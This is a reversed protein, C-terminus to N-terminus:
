APDDDGCSKPCRARVLWGGFFDVDDTQGPFVEGCLRSLRTLRDLEDMIVMPVLVIVDSQQSNTLPVLDTDELKDKHHIYFSTDPMVYCGYRVV